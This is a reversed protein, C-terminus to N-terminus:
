AEDSVKYLRIVGEDDAKVQFDFDAEISVAHKLVDERITTRMRSPNSLPIPMSNLYQDILWNIQKGSLFSLKNTLVFKLFSRTSPSRYKVMKKQELRYFYGHDRIAALLRQDLVVFIHNTKNKASISHRKNKSPDHFFRIDQIFKVMRRDVCDGDKDIEEVMLFASTLQVLRREIIEYNSPHPTLNLRKALDYMSTSLVVASRDIISDFGDNYHENGCMHGNPIIKFIDGWSMKAGEEYSKDNLRITTAFALLTELIDRHPQLLYDGYLNVRLDKGYSNINTTGLPTNLNTGGSEAIEVLRKKMSETLKLAPYFVTARSYLLSSIFNNPREREVTVELSSQEEDNKKNM